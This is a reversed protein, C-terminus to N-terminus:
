GIQPLTPVLVADQFGDAPAASNAIKAADTHSASRVQIDVGAAGM